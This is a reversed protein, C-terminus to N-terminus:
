STLGIIKMKYSIISGKAFEHYHMFVEEQLIICKSLQDAEMNFGRSTHSLSIQQFSSIFFKVRMRWHKLQLLQLNYSGKEWEIVVKSDGYIYFSEIGNLSAFSLIGWLVLM